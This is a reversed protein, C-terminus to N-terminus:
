GKKKLEALYAAMDDPTIVGTREGNRSPRQINKHDPIKKDADKVLKLYYKQVKKANTEGLEQVLADEDLSDYWYSQLQKLEAKAQEAAVKPTIAQRQFYALRMKDAIRRAMMVHLPSEQDTPLGSEKMAESIQGKLQSMALDVRRQNEIKIAMEKSEMERREYETLKKETEKARKEEPTMKLPAVGNEYYWQGIFEMVEPAIEGSNLAAKVVDIPAYKLKKLAINPDKLDNLLNSVERQLNSFQTIKPEFAMGKQIWATRQEPTLWVDKGEVVYKEKGANPDVPPTVPMGPAQGKAPAQQSKGNAKDSIGQAINNAITSAPPTATEAM